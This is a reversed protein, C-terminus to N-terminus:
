RRTFSAPSVVDMLVIPVSSPSVLNIVEVSRLVVRLDTQVRPPPSAANPNEAFSIPVRDIRDPAALIPSNRILFWGTEFISIRPLHDDSANRTYILGCTRSHVFLMLASMILFLEKKSAVSAWLDSVESGRVLFGQTPLSDSILM